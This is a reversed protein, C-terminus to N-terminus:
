AAKKAAGRKEVPIGRLDRLAASKRYPSETQKKGARAAQRGLDKAREYELKTM